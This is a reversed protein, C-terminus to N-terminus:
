TSRAGHRRSSAGRIHGISQRLLSALALSFITMVQFLARPALAWQPHRWIRREIAIRFTIHYRYWEKKLTAM